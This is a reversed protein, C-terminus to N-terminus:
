RCRCGPDSFDLAVAPDGVDGVLAIIKVGRLRGKQAGQRGPNIQAFLARGDVILALESTAGGIGDAAGDLEVLHFLLERL